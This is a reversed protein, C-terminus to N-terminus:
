RLQRAHVIPLGWSDLEEEEARHSRPPPRVGYGDEVITRALVVLIAVLVAVAILLLVM